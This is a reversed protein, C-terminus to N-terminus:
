SIFDIKWIEKALNYLMEQRDFISQKDWQKFEKLKLNLRNIATNVGVNELKVISKTLYFQSKPYEHSKVNYFESNGISANISKELLTLNGLSRMLTDYEEKYQDKLAQEPHEPLIHEIEVGKMLYNNLPQPTYSGLRELDVYQTIKALIYRLRYQQLSYQSLLIFRNRFDKEKQKIEQEITNTIFANLEDKTKVQLLQKAWKSFNREFNKTQEGTIFYFFVLTEVQKALHSFLEVPLHRASLLLILHQRFAGGGMTKINKLYINETGDKDKGNFFNIYDTANDHLKKVFDFPKPVYNVQIANGTLWDYIEDERLIEESKDNKVNYNAMIFYRLFRLPKEEANELMKIIAKWQTKLNSFEEKKVHRFLLNKLLDMPSLDVGRDNITEFIKLADNIGPTQIQIFKLKNTFYIYFRMLERENGVPFKSIIFTYATEYADHLREVSGQINEPRNPNISLNQIVDSSEPYQLELKFKHETELTDENYKEYSLLLQIPNINLGRESYLKKFACLIIFLTTKRQQGDIIEFVKNNNKFVVTTGIFYEKDKNASFEDYVDNLLQNVQKEEWVYERQYDPVVYYNQFCKEITLDSFNIQMENIQNDPM